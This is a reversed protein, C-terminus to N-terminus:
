SESITATPWVGGLLDTILGSRLFIAIASDAHENSAAIAGLAESAFGDGGV